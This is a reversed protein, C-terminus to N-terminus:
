FAGLQCPRIKVGLTECAASVTMKAVQFRESIDWAARCPLRDSVLAARLAAELAADVADLPKVIKKEPKYGFLGLQCGGLHIRLQDLTEGVAGPSVGLEGAIEFAAACSLANSVARSTIMKQLQEESM